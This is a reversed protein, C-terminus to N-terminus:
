SMRETAHVVGDPPGPADDVIATGATDADMLSLWRGTSVRRISQALALSAAMLGVYPIGVATQGLLTDLGCQDSQDQITARMADDVKRYTDDVAADSFWTAPHRAGPFATIRYTTCDDPRGGLGIDLISEFGADALFRRPGNKDICCFALKPDDSATRTHEGFRQETIRPRFSIGGLYSAAMRAKRQGVWASTTLVSTSLNADSVVDFDQLMINVLDPREYPMEGIAFALAQGTNGVGIIWYERPLLIDFALPGSKSWDASPDILNMGLERRTARAYGGSSGTLEFVRRQFAEGVALAGAYAAAPSFTGAVRADAPNLVVGACPGDVLAYISARKKTAIGITIASPHVDRSRTLGMRELDSRLAIAAADCAVREDVDYSFGGLFSRVGCAAAARAVKRACISVDGISLHLQLGSLIERAAKENSAAQSLILMLAVRDFEDVLASM